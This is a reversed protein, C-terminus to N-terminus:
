QVPLVLWRGGRRGHLLQLPLLPELDLSGPAATARPDAGAMHVASAPLRVADVAGCAKKSRSEEQGAECGSGEM